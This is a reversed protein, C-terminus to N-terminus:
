NESKKIVFDFSSGGTGTKKIKLVSNIILLAEWNRNNGFL